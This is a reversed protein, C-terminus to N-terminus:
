QQQYQIIRKSNRLAKLYVGFIVLVVAAIIVLEIGISALESSDLRRDNIFKTFAEFLLAVMGGAIVPSFFVKTLQKKLVTVVYKDNAGLKKLDQFLKKDVISIRIRMTNAIDEVEAQWVIAIYICM